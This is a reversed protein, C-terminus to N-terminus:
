IKVTNLTQLNHMRIARDILYYNVPLNKKFIEKVKEEDSPTV